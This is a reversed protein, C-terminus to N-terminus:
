RMTKSKPDQCLLESPCKPSKQAAIEQPDMIECGPSILPSVFAAAQQGVPTVAGVLLGVVTRSGVSRRKNILTLNGRSIIQQLRRCSIQGLTGDFAILSLQFTGMSVFVCWGVWGKQWQHLQCCFRGRHQAQSRSWLHCRTSSM